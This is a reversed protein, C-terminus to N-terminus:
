EYCTMLYKGLKKFYEEDTLNTKDIYPINPLEYDRIKMDMLSNIKEINDLYILLIPIRGLAFWIRHIIGPVKVSNPTLFIIFLSAESLHEVIKRGWEDNDGSLKERSYWVNYGHNHLLKIEHYIQETDKFAYNVCIYDEDGEYPEFPPELKSLKIYELENYDLLEIGYDKLKKNFEDACGNYYKNEDWEYRPIHQLSGMILDLEVPLESMEICIPIIPINKRYALNIEDKVYISEYANESLFVIFFSSDMIKRSIEETWRSGSPIGQDYWINLGQDHFVEMDKYVIEHDNHAYSIFAYPGDGEYPLFSPKKDSDNDMNKVMIDGIRM